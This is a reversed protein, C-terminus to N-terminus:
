KNQACKVSIKLASDSEQRGEVICFVNQRTVQYFTGNAIDAEVMVKWGLSALESGEQPYFGRGAERAPPLQNSSGEIIATCGTYARGQYEFRANDNRRIRAEKFWALKRIALVCAAGVEGPMTVMEEEAAIGAERRSEEALRGRSSPIASMEPTMIGAGARSKEATSGLTTAPAAPAAADQAMNKMPAPATKKELKDAQFASPEQARQNERMPEAPASKAPEMAPASRLEKSAEPQLPDAGERSMLLVVTVSLVIVAALSVPAGWGFPSYHNKKKPTVSKRAAALISEDLHSPPEARSGSQYVRSLWDSGPMDKDGNSPTNAM